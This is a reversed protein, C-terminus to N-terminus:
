YRPGRGAPSQSKCARCRSCSAGGGPGGQSGCGACAKLALFGHEDRHYPWHSPPPAEMFALEYIQLFESYGSASGTHDEDDVDPLHDIYKGLLACFDRYERTFMLFSHWADDVPGAMGIPDDSAACIALFKKLETVQETAVTMDVHHDTMLRQIVVRLDYDVIQEYLEAAKRATDIKASGHSETGPIAQVLSM